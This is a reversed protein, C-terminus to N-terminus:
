IGYWFRGAVAQDLTAKSYWCKEAFIESSNSDASIMTSKWPESSTIVVFIVAKPAWIHKNGQKTLQKTQKNTQEISENMWEDVWKIPSILYIALDQFQLEYCLCRWRWSKELYSDEVLSSAIQLWEDGQEMEGTVWPEAGPVWDERERRKRCAVLCGLCGLLRVRSHFLHEQAAAAHSAFVFCRCKRYKGGELGMYPAGVSPKSIKSRHLSYSPITTPSFCAM